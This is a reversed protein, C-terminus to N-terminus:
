PAAKSAKSKDWQESKDPSGSKQLKSVPDNSTGENANANANANANSNTREAGETKAQVAAAGPTNPSPTTNKDEGKNGTKDAPDGSRKGKAGGPRAAEGIIINAGERLKDLGDVVVKDGPSLGSEVLIKDEDTPGLKVPVVSVTKGDENVRYVFTGISGKQLATAPMYIVDKKVELISKVNVFQNAFLAGKANAFIARLKVTGTTLDIVNDISELRGKDLISKNDSDWAEIEVPKSAGSPKGNAANKGSRYPGSNVGALPTAGNKASVREGQNGEGRAGERSDSQLSPLPNIKQLYTSLLSQPVAFIVTTPSVQTIVFLPTSNNAQVLNGPDVQRLGIRGSIPSTIRAFEVQLRASDVLGQDTLLNGRYQEVLARQTDFVQNSVSEQAILTEYRKLDIEANRLLMKDRELAGQAQKLTAEYSRPDIQALVQGAQVMEGEKFYVNTLVGSVQPYVTVINRPVVTGLANLSVTIDGKKIEAVVVSVPRNKSGARKDNDAEGKNSFFYWAGACIGAFVLIVFVRTFIKRSPNTGKVSNVGNKIFGM